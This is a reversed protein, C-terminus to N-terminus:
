MGIQKTAADITDNDNTEYDEGFEGADKLTQGKYVLAPVHCDTEKMIDYKLINFDDQVALCQWVSRQMSIVNLNTEVTSIDPCPLAELSMCPEGLLARLSMAVGEALSEVFYGLFLIILISIDPLVALINILPFPEKAIM